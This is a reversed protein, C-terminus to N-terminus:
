RDGDRWGGEEGPVPKHLWEIDQLRAIETLAEHTGVSGLADLLAGLQQRRVTEISENSKREVALAKEADALARELDPINKEAHELRERLRACYRAVIQLTRTQRERAVCDAGTEHCSSEFEIAPGWEVQQLPILVANGSLGRVMVGETPAIEGRLLSGNQPVRYVGYEYWHTSGEGAVWRIRYFGPEAPIAKGYRM